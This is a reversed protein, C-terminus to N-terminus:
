GCENKKGKTNKGKTRQLHLTIILPLTDPNKRYKLGYIARHRSSCGRFPPNKKYKLYM